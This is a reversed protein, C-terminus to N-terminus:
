DEDAEAATVLEARLGTLYEDLGEIVAHPQGQGGRFEALLREGIAALEADSTSATVGAEDATWAEGITDIRWVPLVGPNDVDAAEHDLRAAIAEDAETADADLRAVTNQGYWETRAGDLVRQALPAIEAMLTNAADGTLLPIGYRRVFGYAVDVPIATGIEADWGAWLHGTRVDLAVFTPQPAQEGQYWRYLEDVADCEIIVVETAITTVM